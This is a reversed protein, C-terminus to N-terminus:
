QIWKAQKKDWYVDSAGIDLTRFVMTKCIKEAHTIINKFNTESLLMHETSIIGDQGLPSTEWRLRGGDFYLVFCFCFVIHM